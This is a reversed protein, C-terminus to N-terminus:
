SAVRRSSQLVLFGEVVDRNMGLGVMEEVKWMRGRCSGDRWFYWCRM